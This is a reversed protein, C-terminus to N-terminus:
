VPFYREMDEDSLLAFVEVGDVTYVMQHEEGHPRIDPELGRLSAWIKLVPIDLYYIHIRATCFNTSIDVSLVNLMSDALSGIIAPLVRLTHTLFNIEKESMGKNNEVWFKSVIDEKEPNSMTNEAHYSTNLM